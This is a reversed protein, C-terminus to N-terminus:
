PIISLFHMKFFLKRLLKPFIPVFSPWFNLMIMKAKGPSRRGSESLEVEVISGAREKLKKKIEKERLHTMQNETNTEKEM